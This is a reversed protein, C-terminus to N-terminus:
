ENGVFPIRLNSFWILNNYLDNILRTHWGGVCEFVYLFQEKENTRKQIGADELQWKRIEQELTSQVELTVGEAHAVV